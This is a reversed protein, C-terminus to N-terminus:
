GSLLVEVGIKIAVADGAFEVSLPGPSGKTRQRVNRFGGNLGNLYAQHEM